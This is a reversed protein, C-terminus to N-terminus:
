SNGEMVEGIEGYRVILYRLMRGRRRLDRKWRRIVKKFRMKQQGHEGEDEEEEVELM